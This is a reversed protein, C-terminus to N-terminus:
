ELDEMTKVIEAEFGQRIEILSSHAARPISQILTGDPASLGGEIEEPSFSLHKVPVWDSADNPQGDSNAASVPSPSLLCALLTFAALATAATSRISPRTSTNITPKM